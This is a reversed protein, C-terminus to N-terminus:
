APYGLENILHQKLEELNRTVPYQPYEETIQQTPRIFIGHHASQLMTLDNYSDGAAVIHFNLERLALVAKRKQDSLRLRYNVIRHKADVELTHCFLTPFNLKAMLPLAFERFTDSLIIVETRQRLWQLFDCAGELPEMTDVVAEIDKLTLQHQDLIKLRYQMLEDYDKIDRTTVLLENIGTKRALGVWCEPILVGELDLCTITNYHKSM